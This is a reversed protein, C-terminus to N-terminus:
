GSYPQNYFNHAQSNAFINATAGNSYCINKTRRGTLNIAYDGGKKQPHLSLKEM